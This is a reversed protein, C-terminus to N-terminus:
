WRDALWGFLDNYYRAPGMGECHGGGGDAEAYVRLETPVRLRDLFGNTAPQAFDGEGYSVFTPCEIAEVDVVWRMLERVYALPSDLGHARARSLWYEQGHVGPQRQWTLEDFQPDGREVMDIMEAPLKARLSAGMDPQFPDAALAGIRHDASAARPAIYGGFSRGVVAIRDHDLDPQGEVWDIVASVATEMDHRFPIGREYLMEAQGPGSFLVADFGRVAAEAAGLTYSEEVPQDYGSPYLVTPGPGDAHEARIVYGELEVDEFPIRVAEVPNTLLPAASRFCSRSSRWASLLEPGHPDRRCFFYASRYYESARCWAMAANHHHGRDAEREALEENSRGAAAWERYWSDYNGPEIRSAVALVEGIDCFGYWAKAVTRQLQGDFEPDDFYLRM